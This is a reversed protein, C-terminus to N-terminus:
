NVMEPTAAGAVVEDEDEAEEDAAVVVDVTTEVCEVTLVEVTAETVM